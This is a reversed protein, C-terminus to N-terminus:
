SLCGTSSCASKGMLGLSAFPRPSSWRKLNRGPCFTITESRVM